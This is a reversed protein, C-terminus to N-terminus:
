SNGTSASTPDYGKALVRIFQECLRDAEQKTLAAPTSMEQRWSHLIECNSFIRLAEIRKHILPDSYTLELLRVPTAQVKSIQQLYEELNIKGLRDGGGTALKALAMQAVSLNGCCILGARDSTVKACRSWSNLFLMLGGKLLPEFQKLIPLRSLIDEGLHTKTTLEIFTNYVGHLNHIHGCEQGIIFRLEQPDFAEILASTIIITPSVDDTAITYSRFTPDYNIFIQPIGIGLRRACEEGIAHIEPYQKPGIAVGQMQQKQKYLPVEIAVISKIITRLPGIAALKKRLQLDMAFGYDPIGGITHSSFEREKSDVYNRFNLDITSTPNM